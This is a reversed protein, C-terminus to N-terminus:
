LYMPTLVSSGVSSKTFLDRLRFGVQALLYVYIDRPCLGLMYSLIFYLMFIYTWIYPELRFSPRDHNFPRAKRSAEKAHTQTHTHTHFYKHQKLLWYLMVTVWGTLCSIIIIDLLCGIDFLSVNWSDEPCSKNQCPVSCVIWEGRWLCTHLQTLSQRVSVTLSGSHHRPPPLLSFNVHIFHVSFHQLHDLM